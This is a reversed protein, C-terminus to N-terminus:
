SETLFFFLVVKELGNYNLKKLIRQYLAKKLTKKPPPTLPTQNTTKKKFGFTNYEKSEKQRTDKHKGTRPSNQGKDMLTVCNNTEWGTEVHLWDICSTSLM